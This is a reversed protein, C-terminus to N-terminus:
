NCTKMDELFIGRLAGRKGAFRETRKLRCILRAQTFNQEINLDAFKTWPLVVEDTVKDTESLTGVEGDETPTLDPTRLATTIEGYTSDGASPQPPLSSGSEYLANQDKENLATERVEEANNRIVKIVKKTKGVASHVSSGM